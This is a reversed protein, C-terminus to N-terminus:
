RPPARRNRRLRTGFHAFGDVALKAWAKGLKPSPCRIKVRVLTENNGMGKTNDPFPEGGVALFTEFGEGLTSEPSSKFAEPLEWLWALAQIRLRMIVTFFVKFWMAGSIFNERGWVWVDAKFGRVAGKNTGSGSRSSQM